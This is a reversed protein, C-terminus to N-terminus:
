RSPSRAAQGSIVSRALKASTRRGSARTRTRILDDRYETRLVRATEDTRVSRLGTSNLAAIGASLARPKTTIAATGPRDVAPALRNDTSAPLLACGVPTRYGLASHGRHHNYEDKWDSAETIQLVRCM